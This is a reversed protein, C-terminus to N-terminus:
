AALSLRLLSVRQRLRPEPRRALWALAPEGVLAGLIERATAVDPFAFRTEVVAVSEFGLEAVLPAAEWREATDCARLEAWDGRWDSEVAWLAGGPALVRRAEAVVRARSLRGLYALLWGATVVDFSRDAFPLARADGCVFGAAGALGRPALALLGRERDLGVALRARGALSAVLRGNGCGLDLVRRGHLGAKEQLMALVRDEDDEFARFRAFTEPAHRYIERWHEKM